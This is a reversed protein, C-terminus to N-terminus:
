YVWGQTMSLGLVLLAKAIRGGGMLLGYAMGWVRQVCQARM